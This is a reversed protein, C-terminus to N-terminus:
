WNWCCGSDQKMRNWGSSISPRAATSLIRLNGVSHSAASTGIGMSVHCHSCFISDTGLVQSTHSGRIMVGCMQIAPKSLTTGWQHVLVMHSTYVIFSYIFLNFIYIYVCVCHNIFYKIRCGYNWLNISIDVMFGVAATLNTFWVKGVLHRHPGWPTNTTKWKDELFLGNAKVYHDDVALYGHIILWADM